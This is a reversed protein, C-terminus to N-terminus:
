KSLPFWRRVEQLWDVPNLVRVDPNGIGRAALKIFRDDTTLLADARAEEACALHLADFTGYGSTELLLARQIATPTPMALTGAHSLLALADNRKDQNPNRRIEAELVLSASWEVRQKWVLGFIHEVAEAEAHIRPQGQDDTLRNLACADLYIRV